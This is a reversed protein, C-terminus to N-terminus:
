IAAKTMPTMRNAENQFVRKPEADLEITRAPIAPTATATVINQSRFSNLFEFSLSLLGHSCNFRFWYVFSGAFAFEFIRCSIGTGHIATLSDIEAGAGTQPDELLLRIQEHGALHFMWGSSVYYEFLIKWAFLM